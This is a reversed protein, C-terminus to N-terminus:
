ELPSTLIAGTIKGNNDALHLLDDDSGDDYTIKWLTIHDKVETSKFSGLFVV